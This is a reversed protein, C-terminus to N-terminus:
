KTSEYVSYLIVKLNDRGSKWRVATFNEDLTHRAREDYRRARFVRPQELFGVSKVGVGHIDGKVWKKSEQQKIRKLFQPRAAM